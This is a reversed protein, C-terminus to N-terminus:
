NLVIVTNSRQEAAELSNQLEKFTGKYISELLQNTIRLAHSVLAPTIRKEDLMLAIEDLDVVQVSGDPLILVDILLDTFIYTNTQNNCETIIIDCYWYVLEDNSNYIKSVKIGKDMYYASIGRAIDERPKLTNWKTIICEPTLTLIIDDKLEIMEEPYYRKRYLTTKMYFGHREAIKFTDVYKCTVVSVFYIQSIKEKETNYCLYERKYLM